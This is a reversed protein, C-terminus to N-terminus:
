PEDLQLIIFARGRPTIELIEQIQTKTRGKTGSRHELERLAAARPGHLLIGVPELGEKRAGAPEVLRLPDLEEGSPEQRREAVGDADV